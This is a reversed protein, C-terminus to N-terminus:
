HQSSIFETAFERFRLPMNQRQLDSNHRPKIEISDIFCKWLDKLMQENESINLCLSELEIESAIAYGIHGHSSFAISRRTIDAIMLNENPFRDAFHPIILSLIDNKPRFKAFLTGSKLEEFRIFGFYHHSENFVNREIKMIRQMFPYALYNRAKPGVSFGLIILRYIDDAREKDYSLLCTKVFEYFDASIKNTIASSLSKAKDISTTVEIYESMLQYSICSGAQIYNFSHGYRSSWADYIASLIGEASDECLYIHRPKETPMELPCLESVYAKTKDKITYNTLDSNM